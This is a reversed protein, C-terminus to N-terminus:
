RPFVSYIGNLMEQLTIGSEGDIFKDEKGFPSSSDESPCLRTSVRSSVHPKWFYPVENADDTSYPQFTLQSDTSGKLSFNYLANSVETLSMGAREAAYKYRDFKHLLFEYSIDNTNYWSGTRM